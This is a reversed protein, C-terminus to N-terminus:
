IWLLKFHMADGEDTFKIKPQSRYDRVYRKKKDDYKRSYKIKIKGNCNTSCWERAALISMNDPIEVRYHFIEKTM